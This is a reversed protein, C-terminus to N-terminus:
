FTPNAGSVRKIEVNNPDIIYERVGNGAKGDLPDAMKKKMINKNKVTGEIVFQGTNTAGSAGGSPLGAAERFDPVSNPNDPTWSFGKAKADGGFVRFVNTTKNGEVFGGLAKSSYNLGKAAVFSGAIEGIVTGREFGSGNALNDASNVLSNVANMKAGMSNTGFTADISFGGGPFPSPIMLNGLGELTEKPQTVANVTGM